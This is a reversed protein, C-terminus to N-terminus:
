KAERKFRDDLDKRTVFFEQLFMVETALHDAHPLGSDADLDEGDLIAFTHRLIAGLVRSWAIGKRWNNPAYKRAGFGLVRAIGLMAIPSLLDTRPKEADDKRGANEEAVQLQQSHYLGTLPFSM